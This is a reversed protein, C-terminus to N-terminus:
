HAEKAQVGSTKPQAAAERAWVFYNGTLFNVFAALTAASLVLVSRAVEAPRFRKGLAPWLLASVGLLYGCVQLGGFIQYAAGSSLWSAALMMGLLFPVLLRCVKHSLFEWLLPNRGSLLWPALRMLQYNGTLTRVKRRFEQAPTTVVDDWVRANKEFVTRYGQRVINLPLYCDDLLTGPPIEVLLARRAGYFAGLAGIVSSALGEWERVTNEMKWKLHEGSIEAARRVDGIILQGSVCGVSPDAFNAVLEPLCKKELVQRADTFVVIEGKAERMGVNLAAAKGMRQRLLVPRMRPNQYNSLILNTGDSSGDSLVIVALKDPPYNSNFISDLKRKIVHEENHAAVLVTVTPEHDAKAVPRPRLRARLWLLAPYGAFTYLLLFASAWLCLLAM